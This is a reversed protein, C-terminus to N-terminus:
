EEATLTSWHAQPVDGRGVDDRTKVGATRGNMGAVGTEVARDVLVM